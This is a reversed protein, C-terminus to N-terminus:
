LYAPLVVLAWASTNLVAMLLVLSAAALQPRQAGGVASRWGLWILCMVAPLVPFLYRGQPGAQVIGFYYAVVATVQLLLV